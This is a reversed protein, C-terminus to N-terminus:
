AKARRIVILKGRWSYLQNGSFGIGIGSRMLLEGAVANGVSIKQPVM